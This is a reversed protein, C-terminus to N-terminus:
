QLNKQKKKKELNKYVNSFTKCFITNNKKEEKNNKFKIRKQMRSVFAKQDDHDVTITKSIKSNVMETAPSEKNNDNNAKIIIESFSNEHNENENQNQNEIKQEVKTKQPISGKKKPKGAKTEKGYLIRLKDDNQNIKKKLSPDITKTNRM